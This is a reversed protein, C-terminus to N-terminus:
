YRNPLEEGLRRALAMATLQPNAAPSTPFLSTDCVYLDEVGHVKGWGDTPHQGDDRGMAMTGFVHNSATQLDKATITASRIDDGSHRGRRMVSPVQGMGPLCEKAGAAFFMDVLKANAEQLRRVDADGLDYTYVPQGGVLSVRGVSAEGSIWTDWVAMRDFKKLYRQFSKGMGPYRRAFVSYPAWLSELKIGSDMFDLCHFGQTAGFMPDIPEDFVGMVFGSPHLRLNSGVGNGTLGSRLAITPTGLAGAALITCRASIRVRHSRAGGVPAVVYGEVGDVRGDRVVVRDVQVSCFVEVGGEVAEPIGRRDMSQKAGTRCGTICEGSGICDKAMRPLPEVSWGLNDCAERFLLNRQGQVHEETPVVNQFAEVEEYFPALDSELLGKVGHFEEWTELSAASARMCIAANFVSGGGLCRPQITPAIINGMLLRAGGDWCHKALMMGGDPVLDPTRLWPGAEVVIVRKGQGALTRALTSGGPGSGVILYDCQELVPGTYDEHEYVGDLRERGAVQGIPLSPAAAVEHAEM